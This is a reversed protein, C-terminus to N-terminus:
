KENPGNGTRRPKGETEYGERRKQVEEACHKGTQPPYAAPRYNAAAQRSGIGNARRGTSADQKANQGFGCEARRGFAVPQCGTSGLM